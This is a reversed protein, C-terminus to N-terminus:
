RRRSTSAGIAIGLVLGLTSAILVDGFDLGRRVSPRPKRSEPTSVIGPTTPDGPNGTTAPEHESPPELDGAPLQLLFERVEERGGVQELIAEADNPERLIVDCAQRLADMDIDPDGADAHQQESFQLKRKLNYRKFAVQLIEIADKQNM